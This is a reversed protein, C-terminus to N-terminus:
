NSSCTIQAGCMGYNRNTRRHLIRQPMQAQRDLDGLREIALPVGFNNEGLLGVNDVGFGQIAKGVELELISVDILPFHGSPQEM